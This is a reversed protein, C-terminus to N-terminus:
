TKRKVFLATNFQGFRGKARLFRAKKKAVFCKGFVDLVM